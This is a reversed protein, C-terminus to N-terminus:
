VFLASIAQSAVEKNLSAFYSFLSLAYHNWFVNKCVMKDVANSVTKMKSLSDVLFIKLSSM